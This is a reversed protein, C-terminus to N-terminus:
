VLYLIAFLVIWILDVFHWYLALAELGNADIRADFARVIQFAVCVLGGLVHLAHAGTMLYFCSLLLSRSVTEGRLLLHAYEWAQIAFFGSGLVVAAVLLVPTARSRERAARVALAMAVSSAILVLTAIAAPVLDFPRDAPHPWAPAASRLVIYSGIIGTFFMVESALFLWMGLKRDHIGTGM